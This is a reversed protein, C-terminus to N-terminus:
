QSVDIHYHGLFCCADQRQSLELFIPFKGPGFWCLSKYLKITELLLQKTSQSDELCIELILGSFM